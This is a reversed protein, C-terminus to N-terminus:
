LIFVKKLVVMGGTTIKLLYLGSALGDTRITITNDIIYGEFLKKTFAGYISYLEVATFGSKLNRIYFQNGAYVPNPYFEIKSEEIGDNEYGVHLDIGPIQLYVVSNPDICLDFTGSEFYLTDYDYLVGYCGGPFTCSSLSDVARQHSYGATNRLSDYVYIINNHTSDMRIMLAM